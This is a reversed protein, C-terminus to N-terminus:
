QFQICASQFAATSQHWQYFRLVFFSGPVYRVPTSKQQKTYAVHLCSTLLRSLISCSACRQVYQIKTTKGKNLPTYIIEKLVNQYRPFGPIVPNTASPTAYRFRVTLQEYRSVVVLLM